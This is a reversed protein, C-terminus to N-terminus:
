GGIGNHEINPHLLRLAKTQWPRFEHLETTHLERVAPKVSNHHLSSSFNSTKVEPDRCQCLWRNGRSRDTTQLVPCRVGDM